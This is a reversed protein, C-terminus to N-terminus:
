IAIKVTKVVEIIRSWPSRKICTSPIHVIPPVDVTCPIAVGDLDLRTRKEDILILLTGSGITGKANKLLWSDRRVSGEIRGVMYLRPSIAAFSQELGRQLKLKRVLEM